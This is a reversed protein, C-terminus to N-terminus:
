KQFVRLFIKDIWLNRTDVNENQGIEMTEHSLKPQALYTKFLKDWLPINFGFNTNFENPDKSHHVRHMDPTVLVKRLIADLNPAIAINSHNFMACANLLIEFVLVALATPGLLAIGIFKILMSIFIEFSHFRVATSVDFEPDAHHVKHLRWLFPIRHFLVHQFYILLDLLILSLFFEIINPLKLINFLGFPHLQFYFALGFASIPFVLRLLFTNLFMLGLNNAFRIPKSFVQVRKPAIIEWLAMILFVGIFVSLRAISEIEM